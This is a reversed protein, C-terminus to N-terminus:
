LFLTMLLRIALIFVVPLLTLQYIGKWSAGFYEKTLVLCLHFPSVMQGCFGSTFGLMIYGLYRPDDKLFTAIIPLAIGMTAIPYGTMFGILFPIFMVIIPVPIGSASLSGSVSTIAQSTELIKKFGMIAIVTLLLEMDLSQRFGRSIDKWQIRFLLIMGGIAIALAYALRVKFGIVLALVLLLPCLDQFLRGPSTAESSRDMEKVPKSVGRFGSLAGSLIAALTLPFNGWSFKRVPIGIVTAAIVIAPFTPLSYEWIHRFWYNIFTRREASLKLEDSGAVVMPASVLAGGMIPLMGIMAPLLAIVVRIDKLVHRLGETIEDMRGTERMLNGFFLIGLLAFLLFVTDKDLASSVLDLGIRSLPLHYLLGLLVTAALLSGWLCVRKLTLLLILIFVLGINIFGTM